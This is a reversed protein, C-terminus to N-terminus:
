LITHGCGFETLGLSRGHRLHFLIARSRSAQTAIDHSEIRPLNIVKVFVLLVRINPQHERRFEIYREEAAIWVVEFVWSVVQVDSEEAYVFIALWRMEVVIQFPGRRPDAVIFQNEHRSM